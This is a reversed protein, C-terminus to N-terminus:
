RQLLQSPTTDKFFVVVDFMKALPGTFYSPNYPDYMGGVQYTLHPSFLWDQDPSDPQASRMDLFFQPLGAAQFLFEYSDGPAEAARFTKIVGQSGNGIAHFSGHYFLFGIVVMQDGYQKHLYDGLPRYSGDSYMRIGPNHDWLVVKGEPGAQDMISRFNDLIAEACLDFNHSNSSCSINIIVTQASHLAEEFDASSSLAIYETRHLNLLDVVDQLKKMCFDSLQAYCSYDDKISASQQPDVKQIFETVNERALADSLMGFGKFSIKRPHAPDANYSRMWEILALVEQTSGEPLSKTLIAADGEDTHIYADLKDAEPYGLGTVLTNFGMNEVLYELIRHKMEIFEHTGLTAGGLAVVRANGVMSKLFDLDQLPKSPDTTEFPIANAKLWDIERSGDSPSPSVTPPSPPPVGKCSALLLILIVVTVLHRYKM